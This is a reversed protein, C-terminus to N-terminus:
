LPGPLQSDVWWLQEDSKGLRKSGLEDPDCPLEKRVTSFGSYLHQTCSRSGLSGDVSLLLASVTYDDAHRTHPHLEAPVSSYWVLGSPFTAKNM